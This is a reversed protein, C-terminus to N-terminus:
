INDNSLTVWTLKTYSYIFARGIQVRPLKWRLRRPQRQVLLYINYILKSNYLEAGSEVERNLGVFGWYHTTSNRERHAAHPLELWKFRCIFFLSHDVLSSSYAHISSSVSGILVTVVGQSYNYLFAFLEALMLNMAVPKSCKSSIPLPQRM